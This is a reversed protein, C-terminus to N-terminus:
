HQDNLEVHGLPPNLNRKLDKRGTNLEIEMKLEIRIEDMLTQESLESLNSFFGGWSQGVGVM